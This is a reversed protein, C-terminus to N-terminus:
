SSLLKFFGMEEAVIDPEGEGIGEELTFNSGIKFNKVGLNDAMYHSLEPIQTSLIASVGAQSLWNAFPMVVANVSGQTTASGLEDIIALVNKRDDADLGKIASVVGMDKRLKAKFTSDDSVRELFSLLFYKKISMKASQAFVPLGSQAMLCLDLMALLITTKGSGNRGTLNLMQGNVLFQSFPQIHRKQGIRIPAFQSIELVNGHDSVEPMVLPLNYNESIRVLSQTVRYYSYLEQFLNVVRQHWDNIMKLQASYKRLLTSFDASHYYASTKEADIQTLSVYKNLGDKLRGQENESSRVTLSEIIINDIKRRDEINELGCFNPAEADRKEAPSIKGVNYNWDLVKVHLRGKEYSYYIKLNLKHFASFFESKDKFCSRFYDLIDELIPGPITRIQFSKEKEVPTRKSNVKQAVYRGASGLWEPAQFQEPIQPSIYLDVGCCVLESWDLTQFFQGPRKVQLDLVGEVVISRTLDAVMAEALDLEEQCYDDKEQKIVELAQEIRKPLEGTLNKLVGETWLWFDTNKFRLNEYYSLFQQGSDTPVTCSGIETWAVFLRDFIQPNNLLYVFVEQRDKIEALDTIALDFVNVGLVAELDSLRADDRSVHVSEQKHFLELM